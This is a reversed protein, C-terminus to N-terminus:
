TTGGSIVFDEVLREAAAPENLIPRRYETQLLPALPRGPRESGWWEVRVPWLTEPDLYLRCERIVESFRLEPMLNAYMLEDVAWEGKVEVLERGDRRVGRVQPRRLEQQIVQLLAPLGGLEKVTPLTSRERTAGRQAASQSLESVSTEAPQGPLSLTESIRAGDCVIVLKGGSSAGHVTLELRMRDHTATRIRGEVEYRLERFGARQWVAMDLSTVAEPRYKEAVLNLIEAASLPALAAPLAAPEPERTGTAAQQAQGFPL